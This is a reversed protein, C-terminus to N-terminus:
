FTRPSYQGEHYFRNNIEETAFINVQRSKHFIESILVFTVSLHDRNDMHYGQSKHTTPPGYFPYFCIHVYSPYQKM